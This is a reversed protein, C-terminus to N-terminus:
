TSAYYGRVVGALFDPVYLKCGEQTTQLDLYLLSKKNLNSVKNIENVKVQKKELTRMAGQKKTEYMKTGAAEELLGLIEPPKM